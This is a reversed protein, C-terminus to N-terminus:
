CQLTKIENVNIRRLIDDLRRCTFSALPQLLELDATRVENGLHETHDMLTEVDGRRSPDARASRM